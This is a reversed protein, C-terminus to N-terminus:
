RSKSRAARMMRLLADVERHTRSNQNIILLGNFEAISGHGGHAAWSDSAVTAQIIQILQMATANSAVPAIRPVDGGMGSDMAGGGGMMGSMGGTMGGPGALGEGGYMESFEGGAGGYGMAGSGMAGSGDAGAPGRRQAAHSVLDSCDYIRVSMTSTFLDEDTSVVIIGDRIAYQLGEDVQDLLFELATNGPANLKLNIASNDRDIGLDELRHWKVYLQTETIDAWMELAADLPLDVFEFIVTERLAAEVQRSREDVWDEAQDSAREAAGRNAAKGKGRMRPSPVANQEGDSGFPNADTGGFADGEQARVSDSNASQNNGPWSLFCGVAILAVTATTTLTFRMIKRRRQELQVSLFKDALSQPDGLEALAMAIAESLPQGDALLDEVREDIHSSLEDLIDRTRVLRSSNAFRLDLESLYNQRRGQESM